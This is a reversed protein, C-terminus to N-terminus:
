MLVIISYLYSSQTFLISMYGQFPFHSFPFSVVFRSLIFLMLVWDLIILCFYKMIQNLYLYLSSVIASTPTHRHVLPLHFVCSPTPIHDVTYLKTMCRATKFLTKLTETSLIFLLIFYFLLYLIFFVDLDLSGLGMFEKAYPM